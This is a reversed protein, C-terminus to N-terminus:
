QGSRNRSEAIRDRGNERSTDGPRCPQGGLTWGCRTRGTPRQRTARDRAMAETRDREQQLSQRLEAISSEMAQKERVAEDLAKQSQAARTEIARQTGALESALAAARAQAEDLARRQPEASATMTQAAKAEQMLAATKEQEQQLTQRLEAITAEAAQKQQMAEEVAKQSQAAQDEIERRTGALESLLAAARAQAEELARRQPEASATMAQAAKAEQMLAATKKQEQQLSQRLEATATEAAQRQKMAEDVARQSQAAQSEIERQAMALESTLAASHAREEDLAQRHHETSATLETVERPLITVRRQDQDISQAFNAVEAHLQRDLGGIVHRNEAFENTLSSGTLQGTMVPQRAERPPAEVAQRVQTREKVPAHDAEAWQRRALDTKPSGQRPLSTESHFVEFYLFDFVGFSLPMLGMVLFGVLLIPFVAFRRQREDEQPFYQDRPRQHWHTPKIESPEGNEGVWRGAEASWHAVDYTGSADDELIVITSDRPATEIAQRM